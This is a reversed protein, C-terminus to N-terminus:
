LFDTVRLSMHPYAERVEAKKYERYRIGQRQCATCGRYTNVVHTAHLTAPVGVLSQLSAEEEKIESPLALRLVAPTGPAATHSVAPCVSFIPFPMHTHTNLIHFQGPRHAYYGLLETSHLSDIHSQALCCSIGRGGENANREGEEKKEGEEKQKACLAECVDLQYFIVTEEVYEFHEEHLKAM